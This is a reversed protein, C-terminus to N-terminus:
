SRRAFREYKENEKSYTLGDTFYEPLICGTMLEFQIGNDGPKPYFHGAVKVAVPVGEPYADCFYVIKGEGDEYDIYERKRIHRCFLCLPMMEQM